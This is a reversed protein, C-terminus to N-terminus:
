SFREVLLRAAEEPDSYILHFKPKSKCLRHMRDFIQILPIVRIINDSLLRKMVDVDRAPELRAKKGQQRQLLVFAKIPKSEGFQAPDDPKVYIWKHNAPGEHTEIYTRLSKGLTAPLPVRLRTLFGFSVGRGRRLAIVDDGFVRMNQASLAAMLTSKGAQHLAPFCVLGNGVEAAAAHLCLDNPNEELHWYISADLVDNVVRLAEKPPLPDWYRPKSRKHARWHWANDRYTVTAVRAAPAPAAAAARKIKWGQFVETIGDVVDDCDSFDFVWGTKRFTLRTRSTM